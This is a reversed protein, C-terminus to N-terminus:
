YYYSGAPALAGGCTGEGAVILAGGKKKSRISAMYAKAEASGKVLKPRKGKGMFYDETGKLADSVFKKGGKPSFIKKAGEKADGFVGLGYHTKLIDRQAEAVQGVPPALVQLPKILAPEIQNLIVSTAKREQPSGQDNFRSKFANGIKGFFESAGSKGGTKGGGVRKKAVKAVADIAHPALEKGIEKVVKIVEEKVGKGVKKKSQKAVADIAIPALEKTIEKIVESAVGKGSVRKKASKATADIAVPIVDKAIDDFMGKGHKSVRKKAVNAVADIAHPALEIAIEKIVDTIVGQGKQQLYPDLQLITGAGKKHASMLKKHQAKSMMVSMGSGHKVRVPQGKLLKKIQPQSLKQITAEEYM